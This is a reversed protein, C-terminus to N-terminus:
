FGEPVDIGGSVRGFWDVDTDGNANALGGVSIGARYM